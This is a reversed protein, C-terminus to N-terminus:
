GPRVFPVPDEGFRAEIRHIRTLQLGLLVLFAPNLLVYRRWLRRPEQYLRYAWELGRSQLGEPAQPLKGAHFDFAAGVALAPMSIDFRNEYVWIEQRPCGLGVFVLDAGSRRITEVDRLREEETVCRFRSAQCGRIRLDPFRRELAGALARLTSETSGFLFVGLGEGAARACVSVMLEPGYVREELGVGHLLNLAWRVPQGDPVVMELENIRLRLAPDLVASMVGHVALATVGLPRRKRAARIVREVATPLDIANVHVGLVNHRGHDSM